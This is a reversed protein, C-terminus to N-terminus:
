RPDKSQRWKWFDRESEVGALVAQYIALGTVQDRYGDGERFIHKLKLVQVPDIAHLAERMTEFTHRHEVFAEPGEGWLDLKWRKGADDLQIGWFLGSSFGPWGRIFHDSYSAKVVSFAGTLAAGVSFFLKTDREDDLRLYVDVERRAMLGLAVSGGVRAEGFSEVLRLLGRDQLLATAENQLQRAQSLLADETKM